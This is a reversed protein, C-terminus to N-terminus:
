WERDYARESPSPLWAVSFVHTNRFVVSAHYKHLACALLLQQSIYPPLVSPCGPFCHHCCLSLPFRSVPLNSQCHVYPACISSCAPTAVPSIGALLFIQSVLLLQSPDIAQYQVKYLM